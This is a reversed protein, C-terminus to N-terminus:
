QPAGGRYIHRLGYRAVAMARERSESAQGEILAKAERNSTGVHPGVVRLVASSTGFVSMARLYSIERAIVVSEKSAALRLIGSLQLSVNEDDQGHVKRPQGGYGHSLPNAFKDRDFPLIVACADMIKGMYQRPLVLNALRKRMIVSGLDPRDFNSNRQQIPYNNLDVRGVMTERIHGIITRELGNLDREGVNDATLVTHPVIDARTAERWPIHRWSEDTPVIEQPSQESMYQSIYM